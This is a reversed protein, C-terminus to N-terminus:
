KCIAKIAWMCAGEIETMATAYVRAIEGDVPETRALKHENLLDILSASISRIEEIKTAQELDESYKVLVRSQGLTTDEVMTFFFFSLHRGM